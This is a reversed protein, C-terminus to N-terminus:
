RREHAAHGSTHGPCCCGGVVTVRAEEDLQVLRRELDALKSADDASIASAKWCQTVLEKYSNLTSTMREKLKESKVETVIFDTWDKIRRQKAALTALEM